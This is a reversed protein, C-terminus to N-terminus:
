DEMVAISVLDMKLLFAREWQLLGSFWSAVKHGPFLGPRYIAPGSTSNTLPVFPPYFSLRYVTSV